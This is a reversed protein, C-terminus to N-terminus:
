GRPVTFYSKSQDAEGEYGCQRIKVQIFLVDKDIGMVKLRYVQSWM